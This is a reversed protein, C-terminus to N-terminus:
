SSRSYFQAVYIVGRSFSFWETLHRWLLLKAIRHVYSCTWFCYRLMFLQAKLLLQSPPLHVLSLANQTWLPVASVPLTWCLWITRSLITFGSTFEPCFKESPKINLYIERSTLNTLYQQSWYLYFLKSMICPNVFDQM